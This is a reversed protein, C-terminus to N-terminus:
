TESDTGERAGRGQILRRPWVVVKDAVVMWVRGDGAGVSWGVGDSVGLELGDEGGVVGKAEGGGGGVFGWWAPIAM